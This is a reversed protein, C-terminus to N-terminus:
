SQIGALKKLLPVLMAEPFLCFSYERSGLIRARYLDALIQEREKRLRERLPELLSSMRENAQAVQDHWSKKQKEQWRHAILEQKQKVLSAFEAGHHGSYDELFEEPHHVSDRYKQDLAALDEPMVQPRELPLRVTATATVFAPPEIGFFRRIIADTVEDYKAGGVGHIFLDSLVLRAYMTTILARPRIRIEPSSIAREWVQDKTLRLGARDTVEWTDGLSRAFLRRRQPRPADWIWFPMELWDGDEALDPVPHSKSGIHNVARYEALSQNYISHFEATQSLLVKLFQFWAASRCVCRVGNELINTLGLEIELEGCACSLVADLGLSTDIERAHTWLKEILLPSSPTTCANQLPAYAALVRSDFTNLVQRDLVKREEWPIPEGAADFPIEEIRPSDLSGGPVRINTTGVTDNDVILHLAEGQVESAIRSVLFNKFWVGPHYLTPQHGTAIFPKSLLEDSGHWLLWDWRGHERLFSFACGSLRDWDKALEQNRAVLAPIEALPPEILASQDEAPARLRRYRLPDDAAM